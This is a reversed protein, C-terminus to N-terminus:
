IGCLLTRNLTGPHQYRQRIQLTQNSHPHVTGFTVIQTLINKIAFSLVRPNIM